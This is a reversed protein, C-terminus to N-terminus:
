KTKGQVIKNGEVFLVREGDTCLSYGSNIKSDEIIKVKTLANSFFMEIKDEENIGVCVGSVLTIFNLGNYSIDEVKRKEVIQDEKISFIFRDYVGKKNGVIMLVGRDYKADILKYGKLEDIRIQYCEGSNPFVSAYCTGLLDQIVVGPFLKSAHPLVKAVVQQTVIMDMESGYFVMEYVHENVNAYIRGCYSMLRDTQLITEYNKGTYLNHVVLNGEEGQVMLLPSSGFFGGVFKRTLDFKVTKKSSNCNLYLEDQGIAVNSSGNIFFGRLLQEYEAIPIITFMKSTVTTQVQTIAHITAILDAPPATRLGKEFVAKYWNRYVEPIVDFPLVAKPVSVEPNFVSVNKQMREEFGKLTPHGGKYPHIGVFMQFSVVAFSFWDTNESFTKSHRDRISEMIATAPYSSTQYSDVDIAYIHKFNNSALFNMENLDVVLTKKQHIHAITQQLDRVLGLSLDSTLGTRERFAKTFIQCLPYTKEVFQMTYGVEKNGEYIIQEPKIITPLSLASLERIKGVPIMKTPDLYIKYAVSGRVYISGEGGQALFDNKSLSITQGAVEIKPM